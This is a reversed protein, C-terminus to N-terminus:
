IDFVWASAELRGRLSRSLAKAAPSLLLLQFHSLRNSHSTTRELAVVPDYLADVFVANLHSYDDLITSFPDVFVFNGLAIYLVGRLPTEIVVIYACDGIFKQDSIDIMDFVFIM